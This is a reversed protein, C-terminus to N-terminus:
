WSGFWYDMGSSMNIPRGWGNGATRGGTVSDIGICYKGWNVSQIDGALTIAITLNTADNTVDVSSIDLHPNTPTFTDTATDTYTTARAPSATVLAVAAAVALAAAASRNRRSM